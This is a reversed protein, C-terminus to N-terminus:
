GATQLLPLRTKSPHSFLKQPSEDTFVVTLWIRSRIPPCDSLWVFYDFGLISFQSRDIDSWRQEHLYPASSVSRNTSSLKQQTRAAV